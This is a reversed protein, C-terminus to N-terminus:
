KKWTEMGDWHIGIRDYGVKDMDDYKTSGNGFRAIEM